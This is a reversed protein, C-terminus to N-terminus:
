SIDFIDTLVYKDVYPQLSDDFLIETKNGDRDMISFNFYDQGKECIILFMDDHIQSISRLNLITVKRQIVFSHEQRKLEYLISDTRDNFTGPQIVLTLYGDEVYVDSLFDNQLKEIIEQPFCIEEDSAVNALGNESVYYQGNEFTVFRYGQSKIARKTETKSARHYSILYHTPDQNNLDDAIYYIFEDTLKVAFVQLKSNMREIREVEENKQNFVLIRSNYRDWSKQYGINQVIAYEDDALDLHDVSPEPLKISDWTNQNRQHKAIYASDGYLMVVNEDEVKNNAAANITYEDLMKGDHTYTLIVIEDDTTYIHDQKNLIVAYKALAVHNETEEQTCGTIFLFFVSVVLLKRLVRM